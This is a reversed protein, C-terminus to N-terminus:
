QGWLSAAAPTFNPDLATPGMARVSGDAFLVNVQGRHRTSATLLNDSITAADAADNAIREPYDLLVITEPPVDNRYSAANIGYSTAGSGMIFEAFKPVHRFDEWGTVMRGGRWLSLVGTQYGEYSDTWNIGIRPVTKLVKIYIDVTGTWLDPINGDEFGFMQYLDTEEILRCLGSERNEEFPIDIGGCFNTHIYYENISHIIAPKEPCQYITTESVINQPISPWFKPGPFLIGPDVDAGGAVSAAHFADYVQRLRHQCIASRAVSKASWLSPTIVAVLLAVIAVVILLEILTFAQRKM